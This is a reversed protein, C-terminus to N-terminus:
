HAPSHSIELCIPSLGAYFIWKLDPHTNVCAETRDAIKTTLAPHVVGDDTSGYIYRRPHLALCRWALYQDRKLGKRVHLIVDETFLLTLNLYLAKGVWDSGIADDIGERVQLALSMAKPFFVWREYKIHLEVFHCLLITRTRLLGQM